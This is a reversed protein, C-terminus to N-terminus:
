SALTWTGHRLYGHWRLDRCEFGHVGRAQKRLRHRGSLLANPVQTYFNVTSHGVAVDHPAAILKIRAKQLRLQKQYQLPSMGTVARFHRNLSAVSMSVHKALVDIRMVQDYHTEIWGIAVRM